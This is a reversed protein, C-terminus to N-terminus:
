EKLLSAEIAYAKKYAIMIRNNVLTLAEYVDNSDNSYLKEIVDLDVIDIIAQSVDTLDKILDYKNM